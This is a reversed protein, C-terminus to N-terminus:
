FFEPPNNIKDWNKNYGEDIVKLQFTFKEPDVKHLQNVNDMFLFYFPYESSLPYGSIHNIFIYKLKPDYKLIYYDNINLEELSQNLYERHDKIYTL